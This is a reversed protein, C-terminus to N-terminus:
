SEHYYGKLSELLNALSDSQYVVYDSYSILSEVPQHVGGFAIAHDAMEFMSCDNMGDGVAVIVEYKERLEQIANAKTIIKRIGRLQGNEVEAISSYFHCGYNEKIFDEVWVDLNGTVIYCDDKNSVIFKRLAKDFPITSVIEKVKEIPVSSLLKVRLKFSKDFSILGQMTINTLLDIEEFLQLHRAIQPLIEESTLTGDLDFCFAVKKM